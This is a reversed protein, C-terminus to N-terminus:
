LTVSNIIYYIHDLLSCLYSNLGMNCNNVLGGGIDNDASLIGALIDAAQLCLCLFITVVMVQLNTQM